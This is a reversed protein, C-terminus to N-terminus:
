FFIRHFPSHGTFLNIGLMSKVIYLFVAAGFIASAFFVFLILGYVISIRTLGTQHEENLRRTNGREPGSLLRLYYRRGFWPLSLSLDFSRRKARNSTTVSGNSAHHAHEFTTELATENSARMTQGKAPHIIEPFKSPSVHRSRRRASTMGGRRPTAACSPRGIISGWTTYYFTFQAIVTQPRRRCNRRL